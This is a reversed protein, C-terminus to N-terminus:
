LNRGTTSQGGMGLKKKVATWMESLAINLSRHTNQDFAPRMFPQAPGHVTGYEQFFGYFHDSPQLAPGVEVITEGEAQRTKSRTGIVINDALHPANANEDRPAGAAMAARMPEAAATLAQRQVRASVALPLQALRKALDTGGVLKVSAKM